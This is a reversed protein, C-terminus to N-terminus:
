QDIKPPSPCPRSSAMKVSETEAAWIIQLLQLRIDFIAGKVGKDTARSYLLLLLSLTLICYMITELGTKSISVFHKFSLNQKLIKFFVEIEWRQRYAEIIEEESLEFADTVLLIYDDMRDKHGKRAMISKGVNVKIIRLEPSQSTINGRIAMKAICDEEVVCGNSLKSIPLEKTTEHKRNANLRGVFYIGKEKLEGFQRTGNLGRDVIYLNRHDASPNVHEILTEYLAKNESLYSQETFLDVFVAGVGDYAITYKVQKQSKSGQAKENRGAVLGESLRASTETVLTSDEAIINFGGLDEHNYYGSVRQYLAMYVDKAYQTSLTDLRHSIASHETKIAKGENLIDGFTSSELTAVIERQSCERSLLLTLMIASILKEAKLKSIKFDYATENQERMIESVEKFLSAINQPQEKFQQKVQKTM